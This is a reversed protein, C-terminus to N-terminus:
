LFKTKNITLKFECKLIHAAKQCGVMRKLFIKFYEMVKSIRTDISLVLSITKSNQNVVVRSRKVAFNVRDHIDFNIEKLNRVRSRHVDSKDAIIVAASIPSVPEGESEDHNGIAGIILGINRYGAGLDKLIEYALFASAQGHSSRNIANGIDHLYGAIAALECNAESYGLEGMINRAMKAVLKGHRVGHETYGLVGLNEDALEMFVRTQPHAKVRELTIM